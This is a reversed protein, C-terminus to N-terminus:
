SICLLINLRRSPTHGHLTKTLDINVAGPLGMLSGGTVNLYGPKLMSIGFRLNGTHPFHPNGLVMGKGNTTKDRWCGNSGM